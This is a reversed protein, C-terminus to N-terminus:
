TFHSDREENSLKVRLMVKQFYFFCLVSRLSTNTEKHKNVGFPIQLGEQIFRLYTNRHFDVIVQGNEGSYKTM